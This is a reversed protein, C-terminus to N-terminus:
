QTRNITRCSVRYVTTPQRRKHHRHAAGRALRNLNSGLFQATFDDRPARPLSAYHHNTFYTFLTHLLMFSQEGNESEQMLTQTRSSSGNQQHFLM